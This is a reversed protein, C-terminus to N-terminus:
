GDVRAHSHYHCATLFQKGDKYLKQANRLSKSIQEKLKDLSFVHRCFGFERHGDMSLDNPFDRVADEFHLRSKSEGENPEVFLETQIRPDSVLELYIIPRHDKPITINNRVHGLVARKPEVLVSVLDDSGFFRGPPNQGFSLSGFRM